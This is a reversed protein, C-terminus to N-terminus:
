INITESSVLGQFNADGNLSVHGAYYCIGLLPYEGGANDDCFIKSDPDFLELVKILEKATICREFNLNTVTEFNEKTVIM